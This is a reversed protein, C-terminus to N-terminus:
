SSGPVIEIPSVGAGGEPEGTPGRNPSARRRDKALLVVCLLCSAAAM